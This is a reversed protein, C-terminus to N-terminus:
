RMPGSSRRKKHDAFFHFLLATSMISVGAFSILNWLFGGSQVIGNQAQHQVELYRHHAPNITPNMKLVGKQNCSHCHFGQDNSEGFFHEPVNSLRQVGRGNRNSHSLSYRQSSFTSSWSKCSSEPHQWSCWRGIIKASLDDPIGFCSEMLCESVLAISLSDQLNDHLKWVEASAQLCLEDICLEQLPAPMRTPLCRGMSTAMAAVQSAKKMSAVSQIPKGALHNSNKSVGGISGQDLLWSTSGTGPTARSQLPSLFDMATRASVLNVAAPVCSFEHPLVASATGDVDLLRFIEWRSVHVSNVRLVGNPEARLYCQKGNIKRITKITFGVISARANSQHALGDTADTFCARTVPKIEFLSSLSPFHVGPENSQMAKGRGDVYLYVDGRDRPSTAAVLTYRSDGHARLRWAGVTSKSSIMEHTGNGETHKPLFYANVPMSAEQSGMFYGHVSQILVHSENVLELAFEEWKGKQLKNCMVRSPPEVSVYCLRDSNRHSISVMPHRKHPLVEITFHERAQAEDFQITILKGDTGVSWNFMGNATRVRCDSASVSDLHKKCEVEQGSITTCNSLKWCPPLPPFSVDLLFEECCCPAEAVASIVTAACCLYQGTHARFNIRVPAMSPWFSKNADVSCKYEHLHFTERKGINQAGCLLQGSSDLTWYGENLLGSSLAVCGHDDFDLSFCFDEHSERVYRTINIIQGQKCFFWSDDHPFEIYNQGGEKRSGDFQCCDQVSSAAFNSFEQLGSLSEPLLQLMYRGDQCPLLFFVSSREQQTLFKANRLSDVGLWCNGYSKLRFCTSPQSLVSDQSDM